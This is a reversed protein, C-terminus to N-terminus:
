NKKKSHGQCGLFTFVSCVFTYKGFLVYYKMPNPKDSFFVDIM